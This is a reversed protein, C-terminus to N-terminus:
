SNMSSMAFCTCFYAFAYPIRTCLGMMAWAIRSDPHPSLLSADNELEENIEQM